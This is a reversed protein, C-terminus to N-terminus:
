APELAFFLFGIFSRGRLPPLLEPPTDPAPSPESLAAIRLGAGAFADAMASLPRHWFTLVVEQGAFTYDERYRTVSKSSILM